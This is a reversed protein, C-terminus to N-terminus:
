RRLRRVILMSINYHFDQDTWVACGALGGALGTKVAYDLNHKNRYRQIESQGSTIAGGDKSRITQEEDQLSKERRPVDMKPSRGTETPSAAHDYLHSM